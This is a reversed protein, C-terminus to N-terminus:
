IKNKLEKTDLLKKLGSMNFMGNWNRLDIHYDQVVTMKNLLNLVFKAMQAHFEEVRLGMVFEVPYKVLRQSVM